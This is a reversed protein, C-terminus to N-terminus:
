ESIPQAEFAGASAPAIENERLTTGTQSHYWAPNSHKFDRKHLTTNTFILSFYMGRVRSSSEGVEGGLIPSLNHQDERM